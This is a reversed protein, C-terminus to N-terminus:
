TCAGLRELAALAVLAERAEVVQRAVLVGVQVLQRVRTRVRQARLAERRAVVLLGVPVVNVVGLALLELTRMALPDEAPLVVRLVGVNRLALAPHLRASLYVTWCLM